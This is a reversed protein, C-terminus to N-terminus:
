ASRQHSDDQRSTLPHSVHLYERDNGHPDETAHRFLDDAPDRILDRATSQESPTFDYGRVLVVAADSHKRRVLDAAAALEDAVAVMTAELPAGHRDQGGRDDRLTQLGSSGIAVDTQGVRWPRGFTDAIIVAVDVGDLDAIRQRIRRASADPDTPLLTLAGGPVNSSDIGANACVFGHPTEVILVDPTDAVIRQAQERAIRRRAEHVGEGKQPWAYAGEAKSVIKQSIVVVDNDRLRVADAIMEGLDMGHVIEPLDAVPAVSLVPDEVDIADKM